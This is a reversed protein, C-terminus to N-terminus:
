CCMDNDMDIVKLISQTRMKYWEVFNLIIHFVDFNDGNIDQEQSQAIYKIDYQTSKDDLSFM